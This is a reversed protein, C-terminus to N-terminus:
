LISQAVLGKRASQVMAYANSSHLHKFKSGVARKATIVETSM